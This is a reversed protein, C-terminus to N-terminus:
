KAAYKFTYNWIEGSVVLLFMKVRCFLVMIQFFILYCIFEIYIFCVSYIWDSLKLHLTEVDEEEEIIIIDGFKQFAEACEKM